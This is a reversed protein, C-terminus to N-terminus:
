RVMQNNQFQQQQQRQQFRQQEQHMDANDPVLGQLIDMDQGMPVEAADQV